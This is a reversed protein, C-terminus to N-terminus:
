YAKSVAFGGAFVVIAKVKVDGGRHPPDKPPGGNTSTNKPPGGHGGGGFSIVVKGAISGHKGSAYHKGKAFLGDLTGASASDYGGIKAYSIGFAIAVSKKSSKNSSDYGMGRVDMAERDSMV